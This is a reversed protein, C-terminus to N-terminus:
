GPAAESGGIERVARDYAVPSLDSRTTLEACVADVLATAAERVAPSELLPRFLKGGRKGM